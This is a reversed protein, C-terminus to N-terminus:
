PRIVFPATCLKQFYTLWVEAIGNDQMSPFGSWACVKNSWEWELAMRDIQKVVQCELPNTRIGFRQNIAGQVLRKVVDIADKFGPYLDNIADVLPTVLDGLYAEHADHMLCRFHLPKDDPYLEEAKLMCWVSHEAVSYFRKTANGFRCIRALQYAIDIPFISSDKVQVVNIYQGSYTRICKPTYLGTLKEPNVPPYIATM